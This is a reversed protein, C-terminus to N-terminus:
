RSVGFMSFRDTLGCVYVLGDSVVVQSTIDQWVSQGIYNNVINVDLDNIIGDNNMDLRPDYKPDGVQSPNAYAVISVDTGDVKGDLNVDARALENETRMLRLATPDSSGLDTLNLVLIVTVSQSFVADTTIDWSKGIANPPQAYAFGITYAYAFGNVVVNAFVLGVYPDPYAEVNSGLEVDDVGGNEVFTVSIMSKARVGILSFGDEDLIGQPNGDILVADIHWGHNPIITISYLGALNVYSNSTFTQSKGSKWTVQVFGGGNIYLTPEKIATDANVLFAMNALAYLSLLTLLSITIMSKKCFLIKM